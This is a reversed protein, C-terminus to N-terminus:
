ISISDNALWQLVESWSDCRRLTTIHPANMLEPLKPVPNEGVEPLGDARQINEMVDFPTDAMVQFWTGSQDAVSVRSMQDPRRPIDWGGTTACRVWFLQDLPAITDPQWGLDTSHERIVRIADALSGPGWLHWVPYATTSYDLWRTDFSLTDIDGWVALVLYISECSKFDEAYTEMESALACTGPAGGPGIGIAAMRRGLDCPYLRGESRGWLHNILHGLDQITRAADVPTVIHPKPHASLNRLDLLASEVVYNRQGYFLHEDRAWRLLAAYSANFREHDRLQWGNRHSYVGGRHLAAEVDDFHTAELMMPPKNQHVLPIHGDYFKLFRYQLATELVLYANQNLITFLDYAWLGYPFLKTLRNYLDRVAKPVDPVLELGVLEQLYEASAEPKMLQHGPLLGWPSFHLARTDTTMLDRLSRYNAM